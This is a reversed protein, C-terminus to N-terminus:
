GLANVLAAEAHVVGQWFQLRKSDGKADGM